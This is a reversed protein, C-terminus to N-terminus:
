REAPVYTGACLCVTMMMLHHMATARSIEFLAAQGLPNIRIAAGAVPRVALWSGAHCCAVVVIRGVRGNGSVRRGKVPRAWPFYFHRCARGTHPLLL